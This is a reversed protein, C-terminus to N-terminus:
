ILQFRRFNALKVIELVVAGAIFRLLLLRQKKSVYDTDTSRKATSTNRGSLNRLFSTKKNAPKLIM